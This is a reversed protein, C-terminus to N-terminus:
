SAQTRRAGQRTELVIRPGLRTFGFVLQDALGLLGGFVTSLPEECFQLLASGGIRHGSQRDAGAHRPAQHM